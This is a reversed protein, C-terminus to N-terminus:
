VFNAFNILLFARYVSAELTGTEPGFVKTLEIHHFGHICSKSIGVNQHAEFKRRYSQMSRAVCCVTCRSVTVLKYVCYVFILLSLASFVLPSADICVLFVYVHFCVCSFLCMAFFVSYALSLMKLFPRSYNIHTCIRGSIM